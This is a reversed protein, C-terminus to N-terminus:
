GSGALLLARVLCVLLLPAAGSIYIGVQICTYADTQLASATLRTPRLPLAPPPPPAGQCVACVHHTGARHDHLPQHQRPGRSADGGCWTCVCVYVCMSARVRAQACVHERVRVWHHHWVASHLWVRSGHVQAPHQGPAPVGDASGVARAPTLLAPLRARSVHACRWHPLPRPWLVELVKRQRVGGAAGAAAADPVRSRAWPLRVACVQTPAARQPTFPKCQEGAEEDSRSQRVHDSVLRLWGTARLLPRVRGHTFRRLHSGRAHLVGGRDMGALDHHLGLAAAHPLADHARRLVGCQLALACCTLVAAHVHALAAARVQHPVHHSLRGHRPCCHCSGLEAHSGAMGTTLTAGCGRALTRVTSCRM